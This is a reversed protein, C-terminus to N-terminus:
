SVVGLEKGDGRGIERIMERDEPPSEPDERQLFQDERGRPLLAYAAANRDGEIVAIRVVKVFCHGNKLRVRCGGGREDGAVGDLGTTLEPPVAELADEEVWTRPEVLEREWRSSRDALDAKARIGMQISGLEGCKREPCDLAGGVGCPPM